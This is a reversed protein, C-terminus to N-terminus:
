EKKLFQEEDIYKKILIIYSEIYSFCIQAYKVIDSKTYDRGIESYSFEGHALKNRKDKIISLNEEGDTHLEYKIGLQLLLERIKRADLNGSYLESEQTFNKYSIKHLDNCQSVFRYIKNTSSLKNNYRKLYLKQLNSNLSDFCEVESSVKEFILSFTQTITGELLNYLMILITSKLCANSNISINKYDDIVSIISLIDQKRLNIIDNIEEM